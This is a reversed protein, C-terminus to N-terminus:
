GLSSSFSVDVYYGGNEGGGGGGGGHNFFQISSLTWLIDINEIILSLNLLYSIM